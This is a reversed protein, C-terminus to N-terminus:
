KGIRLPYTFRLGFQDTSEDAEQFRYWGLDASLGFDFVYGVSAQAHYESIAAAAPDETDRQTYTLGLNWNRWETLMSTSWYQRERTKTGAPDTLRAAEVTPSISFGHGLDFRTTLGAAFGAGSEGVAGGHSPNILALRYTLDPLIPLGGGELVQDFASPLGGSEATGAAAGPLGPDRIAFSSRQATDDLLFTRGSLSHSGWGPPDFRLGTSLSFLDSSDPDGAMDTGYLGTAKDWALGFSPNIRGGRVSFRGIEQNM